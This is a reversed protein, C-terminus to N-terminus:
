QEQGIKAILSRLMKGIEDALQLGSEIDKKGVFELREAL